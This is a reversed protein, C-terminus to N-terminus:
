TKNEFWYVGFLSCSGAGIASVPLLWTHDPVTCFMVWFVTGLVLFASRKM